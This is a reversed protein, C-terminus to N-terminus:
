RRIGECKQINARYEIYGYMLVYRWFLGRKGYGLPLSLIEELLFFVCVKLHRGARIDAASLPGYWVRPVNGISM